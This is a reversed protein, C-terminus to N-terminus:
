RKRMWTTAGDGLDLPIWVQPETSGGVISYLLRNPSGAGPSTVKNATSNNIIANTVQTPTATPNNALYLAAVSAVHPSAM